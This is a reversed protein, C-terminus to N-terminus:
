CKSTNATADILIESISFTGRICLVVAKKLHDLAIVHRLIKMSGGPNAFLIIDEEKSIGIHQCIRKRHESSQTPTTTEDVKDYHQLNSNEATSSILCDLLTGESATPIPVPLLEKDNVVFKAGRLQYDAAAITAKGYVATCYKMFYYGQSIQESTAIKGSVINRSVAQAEHLLIMNPLLDPMEWLLDKAIGSNHLFVNFDTITQVWLRLKQFNFFISVFDTIIGTGFGVGTQVTSMGEFMFERIEERTTNQMRIIDNNNNNNNEDDILIGIQIGMGYFRCSIYSISYLGIGAVRNSFPIKSFIPPIITESIGLIPVAVFNIFPNMWWGFVYKGFGEKFKLNKLNTRFDNIQKKIIITDDNNNTM